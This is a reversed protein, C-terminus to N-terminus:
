VDVTRLHLWNNVRVLVKILEVGFSVTLLRLISCIFVVRLSNAIPPVSALFMGLVHLQYKWMPIDVYVNEVKMKPGSSSSSYGSGFILM